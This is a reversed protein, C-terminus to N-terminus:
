KGRKVKFITEVNGSADFTEAELDIIVTDAKILNGEEDQMQVRGTLTIRKTKESYLARDGTARRGKQTVTVGGSAQMDGERLLVTLREATLTAGEAAPDGFQEVVVGGSLDLREEADAYRAHQARATRGNQRVSVGGDAQVELADWRIRLRAGRIATEQPTQEGSPTTRTTARVLQGDGSVEARKAKLDARLTQGTLTNAGQVATVGGSADITQRELDITMRAARVTVNCSRGSIRTSPEISALELKLVDTFIPDPTSKTRYM